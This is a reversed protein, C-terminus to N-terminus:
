ASPVVRVWYPCRRCTSIASSSSRSISSLWRMYSTKLAQEDAKPLRLLVVSAQKRDDSWQVGAETSDDQDDQVQSRMDTLSGTAGGKQSEMGQGMMALSVPHPQPHARGTHGM